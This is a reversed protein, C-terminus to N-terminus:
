TWNQSRLKQHSKQCVLTVCMETSLAPLSDHAEVEPLFYDSADIIM